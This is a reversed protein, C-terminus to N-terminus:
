SGVALLVVGALFLAMPALIVLLDSWKGWHDRDFGNTWIDRAIPIWGPLSCVGVIFCDMSITETITM